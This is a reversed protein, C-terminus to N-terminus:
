TSGRVVLFRTIYVARVEDEKLAMVIRKGIERKLLGPPMDSAGRDSLTETTVQHIIKRMGLDRPISKEDAKLDFDIVVDCFLITDGKKKGDILFIFNEHHQRYPHGGGIGCSVGSDMGSRAPFLSRLAESVTDNAREHYYLGGALLLAAALPLAVLLSLPLTRFFRRATVTSESIDPVKIKESTKDQNLHVEIDLNEMDVEKENNKM